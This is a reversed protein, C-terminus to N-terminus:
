KNFNILVNNFMFLFYMNHINEYDIRNDNFPDEDIHDRSRM